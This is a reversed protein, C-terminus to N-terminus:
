TSNAQYEPQFMCLVYSHKSNKQKKFTEFSFSQQNKWDENGLTSVHAFEQSIERTSAFTDSNANIILQNQLTEEKQNDFSQNDAMSIFGEIVCDNNQFTEFYKRFFASFQPM